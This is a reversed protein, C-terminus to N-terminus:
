LDPLIKKILKGRASAKMFAPGIALAAAMDFIMADIAGVLFATDLDEVKMENLLRRRYSKYDEDAKMRKSKYKIITQFYDQVESSM